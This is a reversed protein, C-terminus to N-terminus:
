SSIYTNTYIYMFINCVHVYINLSLYGIIGIITRLKLTSFMWNTRIVYLEFNSSISKVNLLKLQRHLYMYM